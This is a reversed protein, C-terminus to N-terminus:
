LYPTTAIVAETPEAEAPLIGARSPIGAYSFLDRDWRASNDPTIEHRVDCIGACAAALAGGHTGDSGVSSTNGAAADIRERGITIVRLHFHM